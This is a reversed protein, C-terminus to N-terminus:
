CLWHSYDNGAKVCSGYGYVSYAHVYYHFAWDWDWDLARIGGSDANANALKRTALASFSAFVVHFRFPWHSFKANPVWRWRYEVQNCQPNANPTICINANVSKSVVMNTDGICFQPTPPRLWCSSGVCITKRRLPLKVHFVVIILIEGKCGKVHCSSLHSKCSSSCSHDARSCSMSRSMSSMLAPLSCGIDTSM